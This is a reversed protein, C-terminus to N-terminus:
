DKDCPSILIIPRFGIFPSPKNWGEYEDDSDIRIHYGTSDWSGGKTRGPKDLMEAVNGVM